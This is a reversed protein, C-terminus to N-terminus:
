PAFKEGGYRNVGVCHIVKRLINMLRLSYNLLLEEKTEQKFVLTHLHETQKPKAGLIVSSVYLRFFTQGRNRLSNKFCM